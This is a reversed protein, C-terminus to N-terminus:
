HKQDINKEQKVARMFLDITSVLTLCVIALFLLVETVSGQSSEGFMYEEMMRFAKDGYILLQSEQV